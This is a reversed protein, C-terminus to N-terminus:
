FPPPSAFVCRAGTAPHPLVLRTAHLLLRQARGRIEGAAYLPDGLIPHGLAALHVRLQHSRGTVPELAVRTADAAADYGLVRWRTVSPKGTVFDVKQRPRNPWDCILPLDIVGWDTEPPALRGAVWAVYGKEVARAAFARSLTRQAGSGRALALLGSTDMDLRHVIRADPFEAQVRAVLCDAKGPGRGPVSLLGAPKDFVLLADDTYLPAPPCLRAAQNSM